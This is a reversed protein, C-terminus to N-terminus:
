ACLDHMRTSQGFSNWCQLICECFSDMVLSQVSKLVSSSSEGVFFFMFYLWLLKGDGLATALCGLSRSQLSPNAEKALVALKAVLPEGKMWM